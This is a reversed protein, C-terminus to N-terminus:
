KIIRDDYYLRWKSNFKKSEKTFRSFSKQKKVSLFLKDTKVDLQDLFFLLKRQVTVNFKLAFNLCDFFIILLKAYKFKDIMIM